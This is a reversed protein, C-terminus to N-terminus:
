RMRNCGLTREIIHGCGHCARWGEQQALERTMETERNPACPQYGHDYQRCETCTYEHCAPCIATTDFIREFPIFASCHPRSCYFNAGSEKELRKQIYAEVIDAGLIQARESTIDINSCCRAPYNAFLTRLCDHCAKHECELINLYNYDFKDLCLSCKFSPM